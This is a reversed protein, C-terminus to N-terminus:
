IAFGQQQTRTKQIEIYAPNLEILISNRGLREAVEGTTGSGGFCDLVTGGSPCGALICPLILAPPFTAFHAGRYPQTAVTWVDRKNRTASTGIDRMDRGDRNAPGNEADRFHGQGRFANRGGRGVAKMAGNTKGPVRYSGEQNEINPQSLREISSQAVPEAIAEADFYYRASKSLLFVYEHAKTCRDRVSEPMPNPKHWIIDQRLYWGDAQLAFAVRWPIGILDKPKLTVTSAFAFRVSDPIEDATFTHASLIGLVRDLLQLQLVAGSVQGESIRPQPHGQLDQRQQGQKEGDVGQPTGGWRRQHSGGDSVGAANGRLVRVERGPPRHGDVEIAQTKGADLCDSESPQTPLECAIRHSEVGPKRCVKSGENGESLVEPLSRQGPTEDEDIRVGFMEMAVHRKEKETLDVRLRYSQPSFTLRGRAYNEGRGNRGTFTGSGGKGPDSYYSDGLNLFLVGDDRLIRRVERFVAVLESVYAEPTQELGIQGDHGYDRLGFYPPSTVCCNVSNDPLTKLM